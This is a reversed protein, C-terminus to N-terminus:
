AITATPPTEDDDEHIWGPAVARGEEPPLEEHEFGPAVAEPGPAAAFPKPEAAKVLEFRNTSFMYIKEVGGEPTNKSIRCGLDIKGKDNVKRVKFTRDGTNSFHMLFDYADQPVKTSKKTDVLRLEDGVNFVKQQKEEDEDGDGKKKKKPAPRGAGAGGGGGLGLANAWAGGGRGDDDDDDDGFQEKIPKAPRAVPKVPDPQLDEREKEKDKGLIFDKFKM